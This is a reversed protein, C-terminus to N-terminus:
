SGVWGGVWGAVLRVHKAQWELEHLIVEGGDDWLGSLKHANFAIIREHLLNSLEAVKIPHAGVLILEALTPEVFLLQLVVAEIPRRKRRHRLHRLATLNDRALRGDLQELLLPSREHCGLSTARGVGFHKLLDGVGGGGGGGGGGGAVVVM